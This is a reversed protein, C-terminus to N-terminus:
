PSSTKAQAVHHVRVMQDPDADICKMFTAAIPAFEASTPHLENYWGKEPDVSGRCDIHHVNPYCNTLSILMENFKEIMYYILARQELEDKYAQMEIPRKLWGGNNFLINTIPKFIKLPNWGFGKKSSPIAHDYGQTIIKLNPHEYNRNIHQILYHYQLSIVELLLEFEKTFSASGFAMKGAYTTLDAEIPRRQHLLKAIRNDGVIDNGGGSILIIDPKHLTVTGLFDNEPSVIQAIWDGGFAESRVAYDDRKVLYDTIEKIFIPYEYWSDGEVLLKKSYNGRKIQRTYKRNKIKNSYRNLRGLIGSFASSANLAKPPKDLLACYLLYADDLDVEHHAVMDRQQEANPHTSELRDKLQESSLKM